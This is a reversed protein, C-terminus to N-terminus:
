SQLSFTEAPLNLPHRLLYIKEFIKAYHQWFLDINSGFSLNKLLLVIPIRNGALPPTMLSKLYFSSKIVAYTTMIVYHTATILKLYGWPTM